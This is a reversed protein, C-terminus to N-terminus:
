RGKSVTKLWIHYFLTIPHTFTQEFFVNETFSRPDVSASPLISASKLIYGDNSKPNLYVSKLSAFTTDLCSGINRTLTLATGYSVTDRLIITHHCFDGSTM